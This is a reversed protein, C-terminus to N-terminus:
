NTSQQVGDSWAQAVPNLPQTGQQLTAGQYPQQLAAQGPVYDHGGNQQTATLSNGQPTQPLVTSHSIDWPGVNIVNSLPTIWQDERTPSFSGRTKGAGLLVQTAM